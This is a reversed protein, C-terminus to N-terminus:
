DTIIQGNAFLADIDVSSFNGRMEVATVFDNGSNVQVETVGKSSNYQFRLFDSLDDTSGNFGTLIDSIDLKDKYAISFDEIRNTDNVNRIVFTDAGSGGRLSNIGESTYLIDNGIGGDLINNGTGGYLIDNGSGGYLKNNGSVAHLIDNGADGYLIDNGIGGYLVDDGNGGYLYNNGASSRLTDNGDHGYIRDNGAGTEIVDNGGRGYITEAGTATSKYVDNGTGLDVLSKFYPNNGTVTVEDDGGNLYLRVTNYTVSKNGNKNEVDITFKDNGTATYITGMQLDSIDMAIGDVAKQANVRLSPIESIDYKTSVATTLTIEKIRGGTHASGSIELASASRDIVLAQDTTSAGIKLDSSSAVTEKTETSTMTYTSTTGSMTTVKFAMGIAPVTEGPPPAPTPEPEPEPEPEPTPGPEETSPPPTEPVPVTGSNKAYNIMDQFSYKIGGFSFWEFNLLKDIGTTTHFVIAELASVIQVGYNGLGLTYIVTDTGQGGDLTDNGASAYIFDNGRGANIYNNANNGRITDNGDGTYANEIVAGNTKFVKGAISGSTASSLDITTNGTVAAANITDIGGNSDSLVTNVAKAYENTYIYTDNNSANDGMFTLNWNKLVGTSGTIRDYAQLTWIGKSSEGWHAVTSFEFATFDKTSGASTSSTTGPYNLLVSQTGDPSILKLQLHGVDAHSMYVTVLVHDIEIDASVSITSKVIQKDPVAINPAASYSAKDMNAFTSVKDWTEALRVAAHADVIGFGFQHSFTLGSNNWNGSGNTQWDSFSPNPNKASYALIEQVDRYGLGKNADLMLAIVGSVAPASFSTGSVTAYDGSLYGASGTNDTTYITRGPASVLVAAGPTSFYSDAGSKDISGVAITYPSNQTNHHNVNDGSSRSNGASFVVNTGLGDRSNKAMNEIATFYSAYSSSLKNDSFISTYGWSNNLVDVNDTAKNFAGVIASLTSGSFSMKYGVLTADPAVGVTGTGNNDAAIVGAVATGHKNGSTIYADADGAAFDWDLATNYNKALDVHKYDFGDDLVGVKIGAGKYDDWVKEVNLDMGAYSNNKLHWQTKYGGDTPIYAPQVNAIASIPSPIAALTETPMIHPAVPGSFFHSTDTDQDEDQYAKHEKTNLLSPLSFFLESM